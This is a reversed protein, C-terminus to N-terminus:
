SAPLLTIPFAISIKANPRLEDGTLLINANNGDPLEVILADGERVDLPAFVQVVGEVVLTMGPRAAEPIEVHVVTGGPIRIQLDDGPDIGEPLVVRPPALAIETDTEEPATPRKKKKPLVKADDFFPKKEEELDKQKTPRDLGQMALVKGKKEKKVTEGEERAVLSVNGDPLIEVGAARLVFADTTTLRRAAMGKAMADNYANSFGTQNQIDMLGKADALLHRIECGHCEGVVVGEAWAVRSVSIMNRTDCRGCTYMCYFRDSGVKGLAVKEVEEGVKGVPVEVEPKTKKESFGRAAGLRNKTM